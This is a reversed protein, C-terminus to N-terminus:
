PNPPATYHMSATLGHALSAPVEIRPQFAAIDAFREVLLIVMQQQHGVLELSAKVLRQQAAHIHVLLQATDRRYPRHGAQIACRWALLPKFFGDDLQRQNERPATAGNGLVSLGATNPAVM